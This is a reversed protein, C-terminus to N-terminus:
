VQILQEVPAVADQDEKTPPHSDEICPMGGHFLESLGNSALAEVMTLQMM